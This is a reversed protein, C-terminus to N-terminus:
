RRLVSNTEFPSLSYRKKRASSPIWVGIAQDAHNFAKILSITAVTMFSCLLLAVLNDSGLKTAPLDVLPAICIALVCLVCFVAAAVRIFRVM